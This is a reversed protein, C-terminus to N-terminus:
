SVREKNWSIVKVGKSYHKSHLNDSTFTLDNIKYSINLTPLKLKQLEWPSHHIDYRYLKSQSELYLCYRETLWLDLPKKESIMEMPTFHIDLHYKKLPNESHYNNSTRSIRAKEYPLGSLNKAVIVSIWKQAEINLFYVGPKGNKTVYTRVNIEHFDSIFKVPPLNRPRIKQMTFAVISVYCKGNFTDIELNEPVLLRLANMDVEWHLFIADNWEQYFEWKGAPMEWPRHAIDNLLKQIDNM